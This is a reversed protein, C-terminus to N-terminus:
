KVFVSIGESELLGKALLGEPISSSSFVLVLRGSAPVECSSPDFHTMEYETLYGSDHPTPGHRVPRPASGHPPEEAGVAYPAHRHAPDMGGVPGLLPVQVVQERGGGAGQVPHPDHHVARVSCRPAGRRLEEAPEAGIDDRDVVAGVPPVDVLPAAGGGGLDHG